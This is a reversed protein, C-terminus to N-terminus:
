STENCCDLNILFLPVPAVKSSFAIEDCHNAPIVALRAKKESFTKIESPNGAVQIEKFLM